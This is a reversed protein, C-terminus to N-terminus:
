SRKNKENIELEQGTCESMDTSNKSQLQVGLLKSLTQCPTKVELSRKKLVQRKKQERELDSQETQLVSSDNLVELDVLLLPQEMNNQVEDVKEKNTM